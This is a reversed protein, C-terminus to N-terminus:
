YTEPTASRRSSSPQGPWGPLRFPSFMRTSVMVIQIRNKRIYKAFRMGQWFTKPSHFSGIRFEPRPVQLTKLEELQQGSNRLCGLHLDFRSSDIRLTLNAVQSETGGIHFITLIKLLKIRNPQM